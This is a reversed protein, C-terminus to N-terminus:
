RGAAVMIKEGSLDLVLTELALRINAGSLLAQKTKEIREMISLLQGTTYQQSMKIREKEQDQHIIYAFGGCEKEVMIDRYWLLLLDLQRILQKRDQGSKKSGGSSDAILEEVMAFAETMSAHLLRNAIALMHNREVLGDEKVLELARGLSGGALALPLMGPQEIGNQKLGLLIEEPSLFQFVMQQCRSIVTPLLSQLNMTVLIFVVGAMPEELIKLLGNAAELTMTEADLIINVRWAGVKPGANNERQLLRIQEIKISAGEPALVVFDPHEKRDVQGCSHCIGCSDGLLPHQCLLARAFATAVLSKGVGPPGALLYAHAVQGSAIMATMAEVNKQHGVIDKLAGTM